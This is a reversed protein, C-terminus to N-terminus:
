FRLQLNQITSRCHTCVVNGYMQMHVSLIFGQRGDSIIPMGVEAGMAKLIRSDDFSRLDPLAWATAMAVVSNNYRARLFETFGALTYTSNAVVFGPENALSWGLVRDADRFLTGVRQLVM